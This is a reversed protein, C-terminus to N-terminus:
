GKPPWKQAGHLLRMIEVTESKPLYRYIVIFPTRSIVLERTKQRRGIRGMEPYDRLRATQQSIEDLVIVAAARNQAAIYAVAQQRAKRARETWIIKM